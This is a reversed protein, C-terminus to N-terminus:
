HEEITLSTKCIYSVFLLNSLYVGHVILISLLYYFGELNNDTCILATNVKKKKKLSVDTSPAFNLNEEDLEGVM